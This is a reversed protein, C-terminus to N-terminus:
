LSENLILVNTKNRNRSLTTLQELKKKTRAMKSHGLPFRVLTNVENNAFKM